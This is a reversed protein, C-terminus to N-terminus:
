GAARHNRSHWVDRREGGSNSAGLRAQALNPMKVGRLCDGAADWYSIRGFWTDFAHARLRACEPAQQDIANIRAAGMVATFTNDFKYAHFYAVVGIIRGQSSLIVRM